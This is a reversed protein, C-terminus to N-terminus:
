RISLVVLSAAPWQTEKRAQKRRYARLGWFILNFLLAGCTDILVDTRTSTRGPIMSQHWEDLCGVLFTFSVALMTAAVALQSGIMNMYVRVSRYWAKRFLLGLTGYGSFHGLKRLLHHVMGFFPTNAQGLTHPWIHALWRGTTNGGLFPTSEIRLVALACLVAIWAYFLHRQRETRPRSTSFPLQSITPSASM